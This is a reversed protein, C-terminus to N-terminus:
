RARSAMEALKAKTSRRSGPATETPPLPVGEWVARARANAHYGWCPTGKDCQVGELEPHPDGCLTM